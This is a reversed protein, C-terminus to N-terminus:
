KPVEVIFSQLVNGMDNWDSSPVRGMGTKFHALSQNGGFNEPGGPKWAEFVLPEGNMWYWGGDPEVAGKKQVLGIMPGNHQGESILWHGEDKGTLEFLYENEEHTGIAVM